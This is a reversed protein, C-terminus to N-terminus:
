GRSILPAVGSGSVASDTYMLGIAFTQTSRLSPRFQIARLRMKLMRSNAYRKKLHAIDPIEAVASYEYAYSM